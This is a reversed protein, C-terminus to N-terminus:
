YPERACPLTGALAALRARPLHYLAFSANKAALYPALEAPVGSKPLDLAVFVKGGQPGELMQGPLRVRWREGLSLGLFSWKWPDASCIGVDKAGAAALAARLADIDCDITRYRGHNRVYDPYDADMAAYVPRLCAFSLQLVLFAMALAKATPLAWKIWGSRALRPLANRSLAAYLPLSLIFPYFYSLGKGAVWPTDRLTFLAFAALSAAAFAVAALPADHDRDALARLVGALFLVAVLLAFLTVVATHIHLFSLGPLKAFGDGALTVGFIGAPINKFLWPFYAESWLEPAITTFHIQALMHAYLFRVPWTAAMGVAFGAAQVLTQRRTLRGALGLLGLFAAVAGVVMPFIETYNVFCALFSLGLLGARRLIDPTREPPPLSIAWALLVTLPLVNIQSFARIDLVLQGYFGTAMVLSTLAALFPSFGMAALLALMAAYFLLFSTMTFPYQFDVIGMGALKAGYALMAGCTWRINLMSRPPGLMPDDAEVEEPSHTFAWARPHADFYKALFLYIFSDSANGRFVAYGKNGASLPATLLGLCLVAGTLGAVLRKDRVAALRGLLDRRVLLLCVLSVALLGGTVPVMAAGVTGERMLWCTLTVSVLAYGAAPAMALVAPLGVGRALVAMPGLGVGAFVACNVLIAFAAQLM